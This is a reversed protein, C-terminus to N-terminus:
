LLLFPVPRNGVRLRALGSGMSLLTYWRSNLDLGWRQDFTGLPYGLPLPTRAYPNGLIVCRVSNEFEIKNDGGKAFEEAYALPGVDEGAGIRERIHYFAEVRRSELWFHQLIMIASITTNADARLKAKGKFRFRLPEDALTQGQRPEIWLYEGFAAALTEPIMPAYITKCGHLVLVCHDDKFENFQKRADDIKQEIPSTPDFAGGPLHPALEKIEFWHREGRIDTGYDLRKSRSPTEMEYTFDIGLTGLYQEFLLESHNKLDTVAIM